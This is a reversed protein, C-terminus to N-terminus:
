FGHKSALAALDSAAKRENNSVSYDDWESAADKKFWDAMAKCFKVWEDHTLDQWYARQNRKSLYVSKETPNLQMIAIAKEKSM